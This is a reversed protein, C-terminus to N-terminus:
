RDYASSSERSLLERVAEDSLADLDALLEDIEEDSAQAFKAEEVFEALRAVNPTGSFFVKMPIDIHFAERVRSIIQTILLSHGGLQFFNDFIGVRELGLVNAWIDALTEETPTRPAVYEEALESM